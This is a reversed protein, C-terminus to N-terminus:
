NIASIMLLNFTALENFAYVIGKKKTEIERFICVYTKISENKFICNTQSIHNIKRQFVLRIFQIEAVESPIFGTM